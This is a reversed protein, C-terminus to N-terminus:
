VSMGKMFNRNVDMPVRLEHGMQSLENIKILALNINVNMMSAINSIQMGEHAYELIEDTDLLLHAAFVNAEYETSNIMDFLEFEQLAGNKAIDRHLTDHGIEHALVMNSMNDDLHNNMIICRKQNILTYMGLLAEFDANWYLKINLHAAIEIPNRSNAKKIISNVKKYIKISNTM